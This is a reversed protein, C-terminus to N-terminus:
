VESHCIECEDIGAENCFKAELVLCQLLCFLRQFCIRYSIEVELVCRILYQLDEQQKWLRNAKETCKFFVSISVRGLLESVNLHASFYLLRQM